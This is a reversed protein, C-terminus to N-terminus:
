VLFIRSNWFIRNLIHSIKKYPNKVDDKTPNHLVILIGFEKNSFM